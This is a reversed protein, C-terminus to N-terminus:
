YITKVACRVTIASAMREIQGKAQSAYEPMADIRSFDITFSENDLLCMMRTEECWINQRFDSPSVRMQPTLHLRHVFFERDKVFAHSYTLFSLSAIM